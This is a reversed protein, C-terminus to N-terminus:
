AKAALMWNGELRLADPTRDLSGCLISSANQSNIPNGSPPYFLHM